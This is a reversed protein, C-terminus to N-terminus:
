GFRKKLAELGTKLLTSVITKVVIDGQGDAWYQVRWEILSGAGKPKVDVTGTYETAPIGCVMSYHYLRNSNEIADLREIIQKGDITEIIRLQGVGTGTLQVKAILPHWAGGFVGVLDWVKEASASVEVTEVVTQL